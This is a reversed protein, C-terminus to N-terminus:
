LNISEWNHYIRYEMTVVNNAEMTEKRLIEFNYKNSLRHLRSEFEVAKMGVVSSHVIIGRADETINKVEYQNLLEYVEKIM